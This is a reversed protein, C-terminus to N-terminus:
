MQGSRVRYVVTQFHGEGNDRDYWSPDVYDGRLDVKMVRGCLHDLEWGIRICEDLVGERTYYPPFGGFFVAPKSAVWLAYVLAHKDVGGIYVKSAMDISNQYHFSSM